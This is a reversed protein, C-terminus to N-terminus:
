AHAQNGSLTPLLRGAWRSARRTLEALVPHQLSAADHGVSIYAARGAACDYVWCAPQLGTTAAGDAAEVWGFVRTQPQLELHCYAEDQLEFNPLGAALEHTGDLSVAVTGYMPHRSRGWVWRGGLLEGWEPWDDFCISSTHLAFLGGGGRVYSAIAARAFPSPTMGWHPRDEAYKEHQTMTWRLAHVVFLATPAATLAAAAADLEDHLECVFGAQVLQAALVDVAFPHRPGGHYVVARNM